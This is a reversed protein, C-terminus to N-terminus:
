PCTCLVTQLVWKWIAHSPLQKLSCDPSTSLYLDGLSLQSGAHAVRITLVAPDLLILCSHHHVQIDVMIPQHLVRIIGGGFEMSGPRSMRLRGICHRPRTSLAITKNGARFVADQPGCFHTSVHILASQASLASWGASGSPPVSHLARRSELLARSIGSKRFLAVPRKCTVTGAM